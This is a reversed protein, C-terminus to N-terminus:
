EAPLGEKRTLVEQVLHLADDRHKSCRCSFVHLVDAVIIGDFVDFGKRFPGFLRPLFEEGVDFGGCGVEEGFHQGEIGVLAVRDFLAQGMGVEVAEVVLLLFDDALLGEVPAPVVEFGGLVEELVHNVVLAQGVVGLDGLLGLLWFSVQLLEGVAGLVFECLLFSSAREIIIRLCPIPILIIIITTIAHMFLVLDALLLFFSHRDGSEGGIDRM